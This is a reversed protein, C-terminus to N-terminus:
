WDTLVLICATCVAASASPSAAVQCAAAAVEDLVATVAVAEAPAGEPSYVKSTVASALACTVVACIGPPVLGAAPALIPMEILPAAAVLMLTVVFVGCPRASATLAALMPTLAM